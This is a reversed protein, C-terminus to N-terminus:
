YLWARVRGVLAEVPCPAAIVEDCIAETPERGPSPPWASLAVVPIQRRAPDAKLRRAVAVGDARPKVLVVLVLDPSALAPPGCRRTPAM